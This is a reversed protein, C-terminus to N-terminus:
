MFVVTDSYYREFEPNGFCYTGKVAELHVNRVLWGPHNLRNDGINFHPSYVRTTASYDGMRLGRDRALQVLRQIEPRPDDRPWEFAGPFVQYYEMGLKSMLEFDREVLETHFALTPQDKMTYFVTDGRVQTYRNVISAYVNMPREFRPPHHNQIYADFASIEGADFGAPMREILRTAGVTLSHCEYWDNAGLKDDPGYGAMTLAGSTSIRSYPFDLSVFLGRGGDRYFAAFEQISTRAVAPAAASEAGWLMAERVRAHHESRIRLLKTIRGPGTTGYELQWTQAHMGGEFRVATKLDAGPNALECASASPTVAGSDFELSFADVGRLGAIPAGDVVYALEKLGRASWELVIKLREDGIAVTGQSRSQGRAAAGSGAVSASTRLLFTRRNM